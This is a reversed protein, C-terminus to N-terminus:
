IPTGDAHFFGKGILQGNVDFSDVEYSVVQGNAFSFIATWSQGNDVLVTRQLVHGGADTQDVYRQWPQSNDVDFHFTTGSGDDLTSGYTVVQGQANKVALLTDWAQSHDSDFWHITESGDAGIVKLVEPRFGDELNAIGFQNANLTGIHVPQIPGESDQDWSLSHDRMDFTLTSAAGGAQTGDANVVDLQDHVADFGNLVAFGGGTSATFVHTVGKPSLVTGDEGLVERFTAGSRNWTLAIDGNSHTIADPRGSVPDTPSSVVLDAYAGSAGTLTVHTAIQGDTSVEYVVAVRDGPLVQLQAADPHFGSARLEPFDVQHSFGSSAVFAGQATVEVGLMHVRSFGMTDSITDFYTFEFGGNALPAASFNDIHIANGLAGTTFNTPTGQALVEPGGVPQGAADTFQVSISAIHTVPDVATSFVAHRGDSLTISSTGSM